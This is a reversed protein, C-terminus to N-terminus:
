RAIRSYMRSSAASKAATRLAHHATPPLFHWNESHTTSRNKPPYGRRRHRFRHDITMPTGGSSSLSADGWSLMVRPAHSRGRANVHAFVRTDAPIALDEQLSSTQRQLFLPGAPLSWRLSVSSQDRPCGNAPLRSSCTPRREHYRRIRARVRRPYHTLHVTM